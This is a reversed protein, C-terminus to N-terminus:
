DGQDASASSSMSAPGDDGDTSADRRGGWRHNLAPIMAGGMNALNLDPWPLPGSRGLIRKGTMGAFRATARILDRPSRRLGQRNPRLLLMTLDDDFAADSQRHTNIRDLVEKRLAMPDSPDVVHVLDLLGTEGLAKGDANRAEILSDTYLVVMDGPRLRIAFQQFSTGQVVGLPLNALEPKHLLRPIASERQAHHDSRTGIAAHDLLQWSQERARYILPRPHGANCILLVGTPEFYTAAVATAFGGERALSKFERNLATVFATQDLYNVYQRMLDRLADATEAVAHGHGSVDAILIRTIRGTACSSVYHVDGGADGSGFPQAYVWADLGPVSVANDVSRNGGWVEMCQMTHQVDASTDADNKQDRAPPM